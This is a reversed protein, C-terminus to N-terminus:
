KCSFWRDRWKDRWVMMLQLLLCNWHYVVQVCVLLVLGKGQVFLDPLVLVGLAVEIRVLCQLYLALSGRWEVCGLKDTDFRLRLRLLLDCVMVVVLLQILSLIRM